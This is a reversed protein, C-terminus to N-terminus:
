ETKDVLIGSYALWTDVVCISLLSINIRKSWYKTVLKRELSLDKQRCRNHRDVMACYSYYLECAKPQEIILTINNPEANDEEDEQRFKQRINPEGDSMNSGSCIFYRRERDMWAFALLDCDGEEKRRVLGVRDGRKELEISQLNKMPFMKMTTKVVGIFKLGEQEMVEAAQVSAFYSDACVLRGSGTWPSILEKLVKVGHLMVAGEEETDTSSYDEEEKVIKLRLMIGSVGCCSDQIECGNKPKRDIAVYHPLGANIWGGGQGYWRSISEDVCIM